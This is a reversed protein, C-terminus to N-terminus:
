IQVVNFAEQPM